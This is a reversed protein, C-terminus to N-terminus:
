KEWKEGVGRIDATKPDHSSIIMLQGALTRYAFTGGSRGIYRSSELVRQGIGTVLVRGIPLLEGAFLIQDEGSWAELAPADILSTICNFEMNFTGVAKMDSPSFSAKAATPYNTSLRGAASILREIFRQMNVSNYVNGEFHFIPADVGEAAVIASKPAIQKAAATDNLPVFITCNM